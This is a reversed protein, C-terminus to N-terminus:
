RSPIGCARPFQAQPFGVPYRGPTWSTPASCFICTARAPTEALPCGDRPESRTSPRSRRKRNASGCLLFPTDGASRLRIPIRKGRRSASGNNCHRRCPRCSAFRCRRRRQPSPQREGSSLSRSSMRRSRRCWDPRASGGWCSRATRCSRSRPRITNRDTRARNSRGSGSRRDVRDPSPHRQVDAAAAAERVDRAGTVAVPSDVRESSGVRAKADHTLDLSGLAVRRFRGSTRGLLRSHQLRFANQLRFVEGLLRSRKRARSGNM